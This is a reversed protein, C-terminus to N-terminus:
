GLAIAGGNVNIKDEPIKLEQIDILTQAAFTENIEFLDMQDLSLKAETLAKRIAPVSAVGMREPKTGAYASSVFRGLPEGRWERLFKESGVLLASAGDVLGHTNASTVTGQEGFLRKSNQFYSVAPDSIIADDRRVDGLPVVEEALRGAAQAQFAVQHSRLAWRNQDEGNIKYEQALDQVTKGIPSGCALDKFSPIFVDKRLQSINDTGGTVVLHAEDRTVTQAASILAYLGTGCALNVALCPVEVPIGARLGVYRSGYCGHAGAYYTNGFVVQDVKSPPLAARELAGKVAAAGLDFADTQKFAGGPEGSGMKGYAWTVFPTRAGSLIYVPPM